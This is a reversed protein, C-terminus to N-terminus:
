SISLELKEFVSFFGDTNLKNYIFESLNELDGIGLDYSKNTFHAWTTNTNNYFDNLLISKENDEFIIKKYSEKNKLLTNKLEVVLFIRKKDKLLEEFVVTIMLDNNKRSQYYRLRNKNNGKPNFFKFDKPCAREVEGIIHDKVQNRYEVLKNIKEQNGSWFALQEKNMFSKSLNKINQFLDELFVLYKNNEKLSCSDIKDYVRTLLELHTINIFHKHNVNMIKNLSLVIGIKNVVKISKWYDSLDNNLHHYIKNEIIIATNESELLIDIRGKKLTLFETEVNFCDGIDITKDTGSEDLKKNIIEQLSNILLNGLKHQAGTKFYFAYINSIVNEYHPQKAIELFTIPKSNIIPIESSNLFEKLIQEEM